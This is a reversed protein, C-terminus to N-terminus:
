SVTESHQLAAALETMFLGVSEPTTLVRVAKSKVKKVLATIDEESPEDITGTPRNVPKPLNSLKWKTVYREATTKPIDMERLFAMWKGDRGTRVLLRKYEDLREGLSLRLAAQEARISSTEARSRGILLNKFQESSRLEAIEAVLATEKEDDGPTAVGSALGEHDDAGPTPLGNDKPASPEAKATNAIPSFKVCSAAHHDDGSYVATIVDCEKFVKVKISAIGHDLPAAVCFVTPGDMFMVTGTPTEGSDSSVTSTFARTKGAPSLKTTITIHTPTSVRTTTEPSMPVLKAVSPAHHHDGSYIATFVDDVRFEKVQITTTGNDLPAEGYFVKPGNMFMVTGTPTEGGDSSVTATFARKKGSRSIETNIRIGTPATGHVQESIEPPMLLSTDSAINQTIPSAQLPVSAPTFEAPVAYSM